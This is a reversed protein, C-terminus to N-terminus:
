KKEDDPTDTATPQVAAETTAKQAKAAEKKEANARIRRFIARAILVVILILAGCFLLLPLSEVMVLTFVRMANVLHQGSRSAAASLEEGFSKPVNTAQQYKAVERLDLNMYSLATQSDMRRIAATLSEIEYRVGSLASELTIVDELKVAKKLIELLREEQIKLTELRAAADFYSDTIDESSKSRSVVNCVGAVGDAFGDLKDSPIRATISASRAYYDGRYEMSGSDVSQSEIYGGKEKILTELQTLAKDFELTELTMNARWVIKRDDRVNEKLTTISGNEEAKARASANMEAGDFGAEGAAADMVQESMEMDAGYDAPAAASSATYSSEPAASPAGSSAGCASVIVTVACVAALAISTKLQRFM